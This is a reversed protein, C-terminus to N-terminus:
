ADKAEDVNQCRDSMCYAIRGRHTLAYGKITVPFRGGLHVEAQEIYGEAELEQALKSRTQFLGVHDRCRNIEAAFVKELLDLQRKKM